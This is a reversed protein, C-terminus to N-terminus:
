KVEKISLEALIVHPNLKIGVGLIPSTATCAMRESHNRQRKFNVWRFM